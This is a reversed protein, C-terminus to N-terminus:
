YIKIFAKYTVKVKYEEHAQLLEATINDSELVRKLNEISECIEYIGFGSPVVAIM